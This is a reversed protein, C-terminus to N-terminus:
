ELVDIVKINKLGLMQQTVSIRRGKWTDTNDGIKAILTKLNKGWISMRCQVDQDPQGPPGVLLSCIIEQKGKEIAVEVDYIVGEITIHGNFTATAIWPATYKVQVM